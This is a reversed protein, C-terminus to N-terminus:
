GCVRRLGATLASAFSRTRPPPRTFALRSPTPSSRTRGGSRTWCRTASACNRRAPTTSISDRITGTSVFTSTWRSTRYGDNGTASILTDNCCICCVYTHLRHCLLRGNVAKHQFFTFSYKQNYNRWMSVSKRCEKMTHEATFEFKVFENNFDGGYRLHTAVSGQPINPTKQSVTAVIENKAGGSVYKILLTQCLVFVYLKVAMM